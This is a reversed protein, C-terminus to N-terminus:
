PGGVDLSVSWSKATKKTIRMVEISNGFSYVVTFPFICTLSWGDQSLDLGKEAEIGYTEM